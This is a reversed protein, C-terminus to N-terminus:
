CAKADWNVDSQNWPISTVMWGREALPEATLEDYIFFGTPDELTLFACNKTDSM